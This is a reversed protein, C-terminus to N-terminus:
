NFFDDEGKGDSSGSESGGGKFEGFPDEPKPPQQSWSQGNGGMPGGYPGYPGGGYPGFQGNQWQQQQRKFAEQRARLIAEYDIRDRGRLVFVAIGNFFPIFVGGIALWIANRHAAYRRYFGIFLMLILVANVLSLLGVVYNSSIAYFNLWRTASVSLGNWTPIGNLLEYLAANQVYLVYMAASMLVYYASAVMEVIMAYLGLRRIKHGFFTVEGALEGLLFLQGFPVFALYRRKSDTKKSMTFLGIGMLIFVALWISFAIIASILADWGSMLSGRMEKVYGFTSFATQYVSFWGPYYAVM